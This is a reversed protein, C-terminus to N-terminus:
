AGSKKKIKIPLKLFKKHKVESINEKCYKLSELVEDGSMSSIARSVM